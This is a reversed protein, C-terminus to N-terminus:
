IRQQSHHRTHLRLPPNGRKGITSKSHGATRDSAKDATDRLGLGFFLSPPLSSDCPIVASCRAALRSSAVLCRCGKGTPPALEPLVKTLIRRSTACPRFARPGRWRSGASGASCQNVLAYVSFSGPGQRSATSAKPAFSWGLKLPLHYTFFHNATASPHRRRGPVSLEFGDGELPSDIAFRVKPPADWRRGDAARLRCLICGGDSGAPWSVMWTSFDCM